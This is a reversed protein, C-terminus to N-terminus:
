LPYVCHLNLYFICECMLLSLLFALNQKVHEDRLLSISNARINRMECRWHICLPSLYERRQRECVCCQSSKLERCSLAVRKREVCVCSSRPIFCTPSPFLTRLCKASKSCAAPLMKMQSSFILRVYNKFFSLGRATQVVCVTLFIFQSLSKRSCLDLKVLKIQENIIYSFHMGCGAHVLLQLNNLFYFM